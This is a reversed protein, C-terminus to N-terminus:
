NGTSGNKLVRTPALLWWKPRWDSKDHSQSASYALILPMATCAAARSIDCDSAPSTRTDRTTVSRTAPAPNLNVLRPDNTPAILPESREGDSLDLEFASEENERRGAPGPGYDASCSKTPLCARSPARRVVRHTRQFFQVIPVPFCFGVGLDRDFGSRGLLRVGPRM